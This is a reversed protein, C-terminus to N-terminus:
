LQSPLCLRPAPSNLNSTYVKAFSSPDLRYKSAVELGVTNGSKSDWTAKAGAEVQANVRHYYSAAFVSLNNSATIAASYEPLSYAVAASYKTIAAKQVDYGGEAGVLFGEHGLVADFNATPGKLLDFFARTHLNPQKFHLNLKAGKSQSYPIYQTLVEAKLGKTINNDLELKTDLANGTTWMQTLTLGSPADVYKAELSGAISGEHASKGKVNFTVGNPAKSKVELSAPSTHYFDKNLLDNAAKAIDSYAAPASM